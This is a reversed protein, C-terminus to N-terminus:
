LWVFGVSIEPWFKGKFSYADHNSVSNKYAAYYNGYYENGDFRANYRGAFIKRVGGLAYMGFNKSFRLQVQAELGINAEWFNWQYKGETRRCMYTGARGTYEGTDIEESFFTVGWGFLGVVSFVFKETHIPSWGMGFSSHLDFGISTDDDKIEDTWGIGFDIDFKITFGSPKSIRWINIDLDVASLNFDSDEVKLNYNPFGLGVCTSVEAEAFLISNAMLLLLLASVIIKKKM